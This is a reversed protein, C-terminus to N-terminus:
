KVLGSISRSYRYKVRGHSVGQSFIIGVQENNKNHVYAFNFRNRYPDFSYKKEQGSSESELFTSFVKNSLMGRGSVYKDGIFYAVCCSALVIFLLGWISEIKKDGVKSVL